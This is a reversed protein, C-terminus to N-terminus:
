RQLWGSLNIVKSAPGQGGSSTTPSPLVSGCSKFFTEFSVSFYLRCWTWSTPSAGTFGQCNKSCLIALFEMIDTRSTQTSSPTRPTWASPWTQEGTAISQRGNGNCIWMNSWVFNLQLTKGCVAFLVMCAPVNNWWVRSKCNEANQASRRRWSVWREKDRDFDVQVSSVVETQM